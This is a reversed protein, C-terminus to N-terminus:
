KATAAQFYFASPLAPVDLSPVAAAAVSDKVKLVDGPMLPSTETAAITKPGDRSQRVVEYSQSDGNRNSRDLITAMVRSSAITERAEVIEKDVAAIAMALSTANESNLRARAEEAEALRGEAQTVAVLYDQRRAEIDSLDTRLMVMNNSVVLGRDKLRQMDELRETRLRKQVDIQDFKRRLAEVESKAAAIRLAVEKGQQRRKAQEARLITNEAELFVRVTREGGWRTLHVPVPLTSAGDRDAELRARRALLQKVQLTTSRLREAERAGEIINSVNGEGRDIGGALAIAHLTIMGPVYKYVGPRKVPGVVYIPARELIKIDINASRGNMAMFSAALDVRIDDLARGAVSFQGLLPISIGGDQEITYEGSLDMRQYFTRLAGQSQSGDRGNPKAGSVDLPEFFGIKIKDGIELSLPSSPRSSRGIENAALRQRAADQSQAASGVFTVAAILAIASVTITARM